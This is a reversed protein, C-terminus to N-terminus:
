YNIYTKMKYLIMELEMIMCIKTLNNNLEIYQWANTLVFNLVFFKNIMRKLKVSKNVLLQVNLFSIWASKDMRLKAYHNKLQHLIIQIVKIKLHGIQILRKIKKFQRIQLFRM